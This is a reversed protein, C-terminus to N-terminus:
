GGVHFRGGECRLRFSSTLPLAAGRMMTLLSEKEVPEALLLIVMGRADIGRRGARGSMQIYEAATPQRFTEGDWKRMSTFLVTRAPMNVGMSFTETAFLLRVLGEQFLIEVVERLVPLM